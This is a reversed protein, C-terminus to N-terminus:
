KIYKKVISFVSEIGNFDPSYIPSYIYAIGLEDLREKVVKSIHFSLNDLYFCLDDFFYKVRLQEIFIKFKPIDISDDFLM